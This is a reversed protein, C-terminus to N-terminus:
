PQAGIRQRLEVIRDFDSLTLTINHTHIEGGELQDDQEIVVLGDEVTARCGRSPLIEIAEEIVVPEPKAQRAPARKKKTHKKVVDALTKADATQNAKKCRGKHRPASCRACQTATPNTM